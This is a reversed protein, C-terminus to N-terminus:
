FRWSLGFRLRWDPVIQVSTVNQVLPWEVGADAHLRDEFTALVRPGLYLATIATDDLREGAQHDKGKTEGTLQAQLAATSRHGLWLFAGPGGNWLLDDAYRYDFDGDGRAMYQLGGEFFARRWSTFLALGLIGDISGSGLALDHGHVGSTGHPGEHHSPPGGPRVDARSHRGARSHAPETGGPGDGEGDGAGDGEPAGEEHHELEEALRDSDGTPFKLGGFLDIRVVNRETVREFANFRAILSVDGVGTEDDNDFQGEFVRRYKRSILPVNVQVGFRPHFTFGAVFQTISSQLWEGNENDTTEDGDKVTNFSTFQESV